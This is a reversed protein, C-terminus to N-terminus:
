NLMGKPPVREQNEQAYRKEITVQDLKKANISIDFTNKLQQTFDDKVAQQKALILKHRVRSEVDALNRFSTEKRQMLRILYYGKKTSIINSIDGAKALSFGAELVPKEWFVDDGQTFWGIAGGKYRSVQHESYNVSYSGFGETPDAPLKGEKSIALVQNLKATTKEANGGRNKFFLIAFRDKQPIRYDERHKEYHVQVDAKTVTIGERAAEIFTKRVKGMLLHEYERKMEASDHYGMAHAKNLLLKKTIMEDLLADKDLENIFAGGRYHMEQLFESQTITFEGVRAVVYKDAQYKLYLAGGAVGAVLLVLVSKHKWNLPKM